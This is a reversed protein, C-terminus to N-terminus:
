VALVSILYRVEDDIEAPSSVTRSIEERFLERFRKRLRHIAVRIAGENTQGARAIESYPIAGRDATLFEKLREFEDLKGAGEFERRLRSISQNLLALAWGRDYSVEPAIHPSELQYRSEASETDFSFHAREGGRKQARARRWENALFRKLAVLLFSRFRGKAPDANKLFERELLRLFFEQTLDQADPPSHGLRRVYGYLPHWYHRCLTELAERAPPSSDAQAMMIASWRTTVFAASRELGPTTEPTGRANM